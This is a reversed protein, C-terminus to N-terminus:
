VLIQSISKFLQKRYESDRHRDTEVEIVRIGSLPMTSLYEKLEDIQEVHIYECGTGEVCKKFDVEQPTAFFDEFPPEFSAVPLHNFIGGGRNNILIVTLHGKLKPRILLGNSDHLFALDGTLLISSQNDHAIGLATSLTGDIGNVGRSAYVQIQSENSPWFYEM